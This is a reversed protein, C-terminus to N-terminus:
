AVPDCGISIYYDRPIVIPEGNEDEVVDGLQCTYRGLASSWSWGCTMVAACRITGGSDARVWFGESMGISKMGFYYEEPRGGPVIIEQPVEDPCDDPHTSRADCKPWDSNFCAANVSMKNSPVTGDCPVAVVIAAAIVVVLVTVGIGLVFSMPFFDKKM